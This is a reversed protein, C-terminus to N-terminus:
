GTMRLVLKNTAQVNSADKLESACLEASRRFGVGGNEFKTTGRGSAAGVM